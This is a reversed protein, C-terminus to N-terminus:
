AKRVAQQYRRAFTRRDMRLLRAAGSYSKCTQYAEIIAETSPETSPRGRRKPEVDGLTKRVSAIWKADVQHLAALEVDSRGERIQKELLAMFDFEFHALASILQSRTAPYGARLARLSETRRIIELFKDPTEYSAQNAGGVILYERQARVWNKPWTM